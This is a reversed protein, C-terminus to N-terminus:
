TVGGVAWAESDPSGPDLHFILAEGRGRRGSDEVGSCTGPLRGPSM